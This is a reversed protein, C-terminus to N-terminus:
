ALGGSDAPVELAAEGKGAAVPDAADAVTVLNERAAKEVV